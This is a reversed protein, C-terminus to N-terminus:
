ASSKENVRSSLPCHRQDMLIKYIDDIKGWLRQHEQQNDKIIQRVIGIFAVLVFGILGIVWGVPVVHMELSTNM